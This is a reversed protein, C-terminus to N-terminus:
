AAYARKDKEFIVEHATQEVTSPYAYLIHGHADRYLISKNGEMEALLGIVRTETLATKEALDAPSIRRPHFIMEAVALNRLRHHEPTMFALSKNFRKVERNLIKPFVFGPM